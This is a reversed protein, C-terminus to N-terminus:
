AEKTEPQKVRIMISHFGKGLDCLNFDFGDTFPLKKLEEITELAEDTTVTFSRSMIHRNHLLAYAMRVRAWASALLRTRPTPMVKDYDWIVSRRREALEDKEKQEKQEKQEQNQNTMM